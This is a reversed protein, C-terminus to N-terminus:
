YTFKSVKFKTYLNITALGQWHLAIASKANPLTACDM